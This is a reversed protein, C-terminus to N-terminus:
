QDVLGLIHPVNRRSVTFVLGNVWIQGNQFKEVKNINILKNKDIKAFGYGQYLIELQTITNANAFLKDGIRFINKRETVERKICDVDEINIDVVKGLEDFLLM